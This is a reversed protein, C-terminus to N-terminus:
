GRSYGKQQEVYASKPKTDAPLKKKPATNIGLIERAEQLTFVTKDEVEPIHVVVRYTSPSTTKRCQKGHSRTRKPVAVIKKFIEVTNGDGDTGRHVLNESVFPNGTNM